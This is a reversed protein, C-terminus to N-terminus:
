SQPQTKNKLNPDVYAQELKGQAKILMDLLTEPAVNLLRKGTLEEIKSVIKGWMKVKAETSLYYQERLAELQGAKLEAIESKYKKSWSLLTRKSVGTKRAIKEFSLGEARLQIFKQREAQTRM